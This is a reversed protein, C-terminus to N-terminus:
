EDLTSLDLQMKQCVVDLMGNLALASAEGVSERLERQAIEWLPMALALRERGENTLALLRSRRDKPDQEGSIWGRQELPKLTRVLTTPDMGFLNALGKISISERFIGVGYLQALLGFQGITLGAKSLHTDYLQTAERSSRRLRLCTCGAM